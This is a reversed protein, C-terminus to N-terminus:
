KFCALWDCFINGFLKPHNSMISFSFLDCDLSYLYLRKNPCAQYVQTSIVSQITMDMHPDDDEADVFDKDSLEDDYTIMM